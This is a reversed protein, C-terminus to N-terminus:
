CSFDALRSCWSNAASPAGSIAPRRYRLGSWVAWAPHGAALLAWFLVFPILALKVNFFTKM